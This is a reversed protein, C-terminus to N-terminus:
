AKPRIPSSSGRPMWWAPSGFRRTVCAPIPLGCREKSADLPSPPRARCVTTRKPSGAVDARPCTPHGPSGEPPGPLPACPWDGETAETVDLPRVSVPKPESARLLGEPRVCALPRRTRPVFPLALEDTTAVELPEWVEPHLNRARCVAGEPSALRSLRGRGARGEEPFLSCASSAEAKSCRDNPLGSM